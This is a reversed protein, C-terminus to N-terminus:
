KNCAMEFGLFRAEGTLDFGSIENRLGQLPVQLCARLQTEIGLGLTVSKVGETGHPCAQTL